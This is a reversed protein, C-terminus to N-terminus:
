DRDSMRIKTVIKPTLRFFKISLFFSRKPDKRFFPALIIDNGKSPIVTNSKDRNKGAAEPVIIRPSM